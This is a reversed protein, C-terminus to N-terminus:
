RWFCEAAWCHEHEATTILFARRFTGKSDVALFLGDGGGPFVYHELPTPRYDALLHIYIVDTGKAPPSPWRLSPLSCTIGCCPPATTQVLLLLPMNLSCHVASPRHPSLLRTRTHM